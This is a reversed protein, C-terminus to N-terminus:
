LKNKQSAFLEPTIVTNTNEDRERLYNSAGKDRSTLKGRLDKLVDKINEVKEVAEVKKERM